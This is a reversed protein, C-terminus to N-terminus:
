ENLDDEEKAKQYDIFKMVEKISEPKLKKTADFLVKYQPNDYIEQAMKAAEPNLYYSRRTENEELLYSKPCNFISSLKEIIGMRPLAKKLLWKGVTSESVQLMEALESQNIKNEDLLGRLKKAFIEQTKVIDEQTM